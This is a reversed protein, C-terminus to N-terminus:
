QIHISLVMSVDNDIYYYKCEVTGDNDFDRCEEGSLSDLDIESPM